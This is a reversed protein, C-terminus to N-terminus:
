LGSRKEQMKKKGMMKETIKLIIKHWEQAILFATMHEHNYKQTIEFSLIEYSM